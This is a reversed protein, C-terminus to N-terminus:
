RNGDAIESFKADVYAKLEAMIGETDNSKINIEFVKCIIKLNEDKSVIENYSLDNTLPNLHNSLFSTCQTLIKEKEESTNTITNQPQSM